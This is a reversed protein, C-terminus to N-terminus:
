SAATAPLNLTNRRGARPRQTYGKLDTAILQHILEVVGAGYSATTVFDATEKLSPLANGVAVGCGCGELFAHDNEADGIGVTKSHAVHAEKLAAALGTAKNTGAPLVMVAGKNFIIELELGFEKIAELVKGENPERTAAIVEGVSLPEVGRQRLANIFGDPVRKHLPKLRGTLPYYLVAGNEAVVMEFLDLREFALKLDGIERGTVMLARRGSARLGELAAVTIEEVKGHHALTGDYDTALVEFRV